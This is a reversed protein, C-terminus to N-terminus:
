IFRYSSIDNDDHRHYEQFLGNSTPEIYPKFQLVHLRDFISHIPMRIEDAHVSAEVSIERKRKRIGGDM